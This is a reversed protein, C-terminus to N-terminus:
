SFTLKLPPFIEFKMIKCLKLDQLVVLIGSIDSRQVFLVFIDAGAQNASGSAAVHHFKLDSDVIISFDDFRFEFCEATSRCDSGTRQCSLPHLALCQILCSSQLVGVNCLLQTQRRNLQM